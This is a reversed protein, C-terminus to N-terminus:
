THFRLPLPLLYLSALCRPCSCVAPFLPFSWGLDALCHRMSQLVHGPERGYSLRLSGAAGHHRGQGAWLATEGLCTDGWAWRAGGWM